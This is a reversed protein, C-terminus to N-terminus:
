RCWRLENQILLREVFKRMARKTAEERIELRQEKTLNPYENM